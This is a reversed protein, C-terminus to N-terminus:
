TTIRKKNTIEGYTQLTDSRSTRDLRHSGADNFGELEVALLRTGLFRLPSNFKEPQKWRESPDPDPTGSRDEEGLGSHVLIKLFM